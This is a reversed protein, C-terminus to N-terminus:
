SRAVQITQEYHYHIERHLKEMTTRRTTHHRSSCRSTSTAESFMKAIHSLHMRIQDRSAADKVNVSVQIAGGDETFRFPANGTTSFGM